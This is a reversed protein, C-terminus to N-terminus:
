EIIYGDAPMGPKLELATNDVKIKVRYVLKVREETTQIQKPTFEAEQSIFSIYGKYAKKPYTDTKIEASQNLKVRGLDTENIYATLWIDHLDVATFVTTGAQVVEGAEASKVLVFGDLPSALDAFGLRTRALELSAQLAEINAKDADAKTVSADRKQTSIAGAKLLNEAREADVKDLGYQAQVAKLSAEAQDKIKTLEDTDLKAVIDGIKIVSGEDAFLQIIKGGVRFSLRVDQGEINGSVKIKKNGDKEKGQIYLFVGLAVAALAIIILVRIKKRM